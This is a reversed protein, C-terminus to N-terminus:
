VLVERPPNPLSSPMIGIKKLARAVFINSKRGNITNSVESYNLNNQVAFDTLNTYGAKQIEQKIEDATLKRM